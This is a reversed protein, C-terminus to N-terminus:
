AVNRDQELEDMIKLIEELTSSCRNNFISSVDRDGIIKQWNKRAWSGEKCTCSEIHPKVYFLLSLAATERKEYRHLLELADQHRSELKRDVHIQTATHLKRKYDEYKQVWGAEHMERLYAEVRIFYERIQKGKDTKEAMGIHKAADVSLFFKTGPRGGESTYTETFYDRGEVLNFDTIRREAWEKTRTGSGLFRQLEASDAFLQKEGDKFKEVLPILEEPKVINTM